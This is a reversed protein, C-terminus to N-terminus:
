RESGETTPSPWPQKAWTVITQRDPDETSLSSAWVQSLAKNPALASTDHTKKENQLITKCKEYTGSRKM